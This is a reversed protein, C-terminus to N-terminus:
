ANTTTGSDQKNMKLEGICTLGVALASWVHGSIGKLPGAPTEYGSQDCDECAYRGRGIWGKGKCAVCKKGGIAERRGGYIDILAQRITSDTARPSGCIYLKVEPRSIYTVGQKFLEAQREFKGTWRITEFVDRGVPMGMHAIDEIVLPCGYAKIIAYMEKNESWGNDKPTADWGEIELYVWGSKRTGPDIALLKDM